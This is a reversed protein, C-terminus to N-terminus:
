SCTTNLEVCKSSTIARTDNTVDQTYKAV